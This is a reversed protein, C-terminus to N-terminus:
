TKFHPKNMKGPTPVIFNANDLTSDQVGGPDKIDCIM